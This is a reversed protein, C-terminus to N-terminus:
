YSKKRSLQQLAKSIYHIDEKTNFLGFSFRITGEPFTGMTKHALPSCHIGTRTMIGFEKDLLYGAEASNLNDITISFVAVRDQLSNIGHLTVGDINLVNELFLKSLEQEHEWIAKLGIEKIYKIGANLGYIGPINLTGSEFKDPMIEPQFEQESFSGTGGERFPNVLPAFDERFLIGGTGQPGLLGKHGTFPLASLNLKQFDIPLVGASQASDIIFHINKKRCLDSIEQINQITGFVNSVHNVLVLKTNTKISKEVLEVALKGQKDCPLVSCEVGNKSVSHLPRIVANHEMSSVIVHDGNKLFGKIIINLSETINSTFVVNLPDNFNFLECLLERTEFVVRAASYSNEYNGRALNVGINNIYNLLSEGVQQPKPYTTAANDAYVKRM